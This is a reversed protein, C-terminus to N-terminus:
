CRDPLVANKRLLEGEFTVGACELWPCLALLEREFLRVVDLVMGANQGDGLTFVQASVARQETLPM